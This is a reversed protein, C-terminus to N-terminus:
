ININANRWFLYFIIWYKKLIFNKKFYNKKINVFLFCLFPSIKLWFWISFEDLEIACLDNAEFKLLFDCVKSWILWEFDEEDKCWFCIRLLLLFLKFQLGFKTEFKCSFVIELLIESEWLLLLVELLLLLLLKLIDLRPKEEFVRLIVFFLNKLFGTTCINLFM